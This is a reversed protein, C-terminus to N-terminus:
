KSWPGSRDRRRGWKTGLEKLLMLLIEDESTTGRELADVHGRIEDLRFLGAAISQERNEPCLQLHGAGLKDATSQKM